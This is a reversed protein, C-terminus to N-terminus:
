VSAPWYIDIKERAGAIREPQTGTTFPKTALDFLELRENRSLARYSFGAAREPSIAKECFFVTSNVDTDALYTFHEAFYGMTVHIWPLDPFIFDQHVVVSGPRLLPVLMHVAWDNLAVSKLCDLFLIEIPQRAWGAVRIDGPYIIIREAWPAVNSAYLPLTSEVSADLGYSSRAHEPVTFLDFSHVKKLPDPHELLGDALQATSGGLFAGADIICGLAGAHHGLWNLMRQENPNLM